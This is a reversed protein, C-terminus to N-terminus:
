FIYKVLYIATIFYALDTYTLFVIKLRELRGMLYINKLGIKYCISFVIKVTVFSVVVLIFFGLWVKISLLSEGTLLMILFWIPALMIAM